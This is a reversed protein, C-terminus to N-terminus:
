MSKISLNVEESFEEFALHYKRCAINLSICIIKWKTIETHWPFKNRYLLFTIFMNNVAYFFKSRGNGTFKNDTDPGKDKGPFCFACNVFIVFVFLFGIISSM